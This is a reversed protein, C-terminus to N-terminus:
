LQPRDTTPIYWDYPWQASAHVTKRSGFGLNQVTSATERVQMGISPLCTFHRAVTQMDVHCPQFCQGFEAGVLYQAILASTSVYVSKRLVWADLLKIGHRDHELSPLLCFSHQEALKLCVCVSPSCAMQTCCCCTLWSFVSLAKLPLPHEVQLTPHPKSGFLHSFWRAHSAVLYLVALGHLLTVIVAPPQNGQFKIWCSIAGNALFCPVGSISLKKDTQPEDRRTYQGKRM